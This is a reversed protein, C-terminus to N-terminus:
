KGGKRQRLTAAWLAMEKEKADLWMNLARRAQESSDIGHAKFMRDMRAVTAEEIRFSKLTKPM